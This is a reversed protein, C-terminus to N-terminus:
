FDFFTALGWHSDPQNYFQGYQSLGNYYLIAMRIARPENPSAKWEIGLQFELDWISYEADWKGYGTLYSRMSSSDIKWYPSYFETGLSAYYQVTDGVVFPLDWIGARSYVRFYDCPEFSVTEEIAERSYNVAPSYFLPIQIGQLSDGLHTSEHFADLKFSFDSLCSSLYTGIYFDGDRMPFTAGDEDLLIFASAFLGWGFQIDEQPAYRILELSGGVQGEYRVSDLHATIGTLSERFDGIM